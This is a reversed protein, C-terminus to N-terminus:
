DLDNRYEEIKEFFKNSQREVKKMEVWELLIWGIRILLLVLFLILLKEPITVQTEEELM